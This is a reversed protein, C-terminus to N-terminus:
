NRLTHEETRVGVIINGVDDIEREAGTLGLQSQLMLLSQEYLLRTYFVYM